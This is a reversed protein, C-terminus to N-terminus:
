GRSVALENAITRWAAPAAVAGMRIFEWQPILFHMSNVHNADRTSFFVHGEAGKAKYISHWRKERLQRM